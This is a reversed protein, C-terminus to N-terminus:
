ETLFMQFDQWSKLISWFLKKQHGLDLKANNLKNHALDIKLKLSHAMKTLSLMCTVFHKCWNNQFLNCQMKLFQFILGKSILSHIINLLVMRMDQCMKHKDICV